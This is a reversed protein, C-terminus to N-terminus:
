PLRWRERNKEYESRPLLVYYPFREMKLWHAMMELNEVAMTTCGATPTDPGRRVHFFIASGYGPTAPNCNHRIELLWKYASDGLRMKQSEFWPPLNNPDLHVFQNYHPLRPDDIWADSPGVQVYPWTSGAPPNAAYGYLRGLEFVGAPARGDHEIKNPVKSNTPTFVGRGWALGKAGLLVDWSHRFAPHWPENPESREFCQLIARRSDWDPAISVILQRASTPVQASLEFGISGLSISILSFAWRVKYSCRMSLNAGKRSFLSAKAIKKM